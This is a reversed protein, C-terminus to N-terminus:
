SGDAYNKSLYDVIRTSEDQSVPAGFKEVMKKVSAEWRARTMVPANMSVYDVSHCIVCRTTVLDRGVDDRLTLAEEGARTSTAILVAGLM